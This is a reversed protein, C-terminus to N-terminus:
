RDRVVSVTASDQNSVFVHGTEVNAEADTPSRGVRVAGLLRFEIGALVSATNDGQNATYVHNTGPVV